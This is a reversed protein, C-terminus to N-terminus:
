KVIELYGALPKTGDRKDIIYFYTGDPLNTGMPSLGRNSRGDFFTDSNDYGVAEYVLTGARNFIQVLNSPFQNICDIQFFENRGDGNRSIGNFPRIDARIEVDKTTECGFFSTAVVRYVGAEADTYNPGILFSGTANFWEIREIPVDSTLILTAYGDAKDCTTNQVIFDFNPYEQKDLVRETKLPSKCGTILSTATVGYPGAALNTYIEGVFDPSATEATGDYWRFVFDKTNRDTGVYAGLAGNSLVCSTVHSLIDISPMPIPVTGDKITTTLDSTCGSVLHTARVTYQQPAVKLQDFQSGTYVPAGAVAAGEYWEFRFGVVTGDATVDAVGNPRLPDCNTVPALERIAMAPYDRADLIEETGVGVCGTNNDTIRVTYVGENLGLERFSNIFGPALPMNAINPAAGLNPNAGFYIDATYTSATYPFPYTPDTNLVRAMLAGDTGVCLTRPQSGMSVIPTYEASEDEVIFPASATCNTTADRVTVSYDGPLLNAVTSTTAFQPATNTLNNFWAFLYNTNADTQGDATAALSASGATSICSVQKMVQTINLVPLVIDDPTIVVEKPGSKCDTTPDHVVVYYTGPLLAGIAPTTTFPGGVPLQNGATVSNLYWEYNYNLLGAGTIENNPPVQPPFLLSNNNSGITIRTVAASGTPNCDLPDVASVDIINPTSRSPDLILQINRTVPCGTVTNTATVLYAGDLANALVSANNTDTQTSTPALAGGNLTWGFTYPGTNVGSVERANVQVIGNPMAPSCSSNATAAFTIEPFLRQDVINTRYPASECGAGPGVSTPKRRAVIFYSDIGIQNYTNRDLLSGGVSAGDTTAVVNALTGRSWVFDFDTLPAAATVGNRDTVSVTNVQITGDPLCLIQPTATALPIFVPTANPLVETTAAGACGTAPNTVQVTYVGTLLNRVHDGDGDADSGDGDNGSQDAIGASWDYNYTFPGPLATADTVRVEIEGEGTGACSTNSFPTLSVVPNRHQDEVDVRVPFSQCGEALGTTTRRTARVYYTGAVLPQYQGAGTGQVLSRQTIDAPTGDQLPTPVFTNTNGSTAAFWEFNYLANLAANNQVDSAQGAASRDVTIQVVDIQGDPLCILQHQVDTDTIAIFFPAAEVEASASVVCGNDVNTATVTYTGTGLQPITLTNPQANQPSVLAANANTWAYNFGGAPTQNGALSPNADATIIVSGDGLDGPNPAVCFSNITTALTLNPQVHQDLITVQKIETACGVGSPAGVRRVGRVYYTRNGSGFGTTGIPWDAPAPVKGQNLVEGTTAGGGQVAAGGALVSGTADANRFWNFDFEAVPDALSALASGNSGPACATEPTPTVTLPGPLDQQDPVTITLDTFCKSVDDLVRFTYDIPELNNILVQQGSAGTGIRNGPSPPLVYGLPLPIINEIFYDKAQADGTASTVQIEVSGDGAIAPDCSTNANLQV